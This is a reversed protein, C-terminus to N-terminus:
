AGVADIVRGAMRAVESESESNGLDLKKGGKSRASVKGAQIAITSQEEWERAVLQSDQEGEALDPILCKKKKQEDEKEVADEAGAAAAANTLRKMPAEGAARLLYAVSYRM